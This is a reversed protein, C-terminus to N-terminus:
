RPWRHIALHRLAATSSGTSERALRLAGPAVEALRMMMAHQLDWRHLRM